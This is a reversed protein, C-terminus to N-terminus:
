FDLIKATNKELFKRAACIGSSLALDSNDYRFLGNRGIVQLNLFPELYSNIVSLNNKYDLSYVPYAKPYRIVFGNILHKRSAIGIKKLEGLAYEIIDVDDMLWLEDGESCFYELGLSTKNVDRVM